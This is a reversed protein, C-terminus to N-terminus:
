CDIVKGNWLLSNLEIRSCIRDKAKPIKRNLEDIFQWLQEEIEMYEEYTITYPNRKLILKIPELSSYSKVLRRLNGFVGRDLVLHLDNYLYRCEEYKMLQHMFTDLLKCAVAKSKYNTPANNKDLEKILERKKLIGSIENVRQKHWNYYEIKSKTSWIDRLRPIFQDSFYDKVIDMTKKKLIPSMHGPRSMRATERAIGKLREELKLPLM